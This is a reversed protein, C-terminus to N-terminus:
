NNFQKITAENRLGTLPQFGQRRNLISKSNNLEFKAKCIEYFKISM